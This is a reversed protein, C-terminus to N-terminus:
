DEKFNPIEFIHEDFTDLDLLVIKGTEFSACDIDIKHGGCYPYIGGEWREVLFGPLFQKLSILEGILNPIPTHGHIIITEDFGQPWPNYIHQRDWTLNDGTPPTFGAHSLILTHGDANIYEYKEPLHRLIGAYERKMGDECWAEFTSYGGNYALLSLASNDPTDSFFDLISDSLMEEHNGKLFVFRKDSLIEKIIKFGDKGRDACDGLCICIDDEKLFDQIAKFLPFQGHVDSFCYVSM